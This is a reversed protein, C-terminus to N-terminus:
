PESSPSMCAADVCIRDGKCDTDKTCGPITPPPPPSSAPVASLAADIRAFIDAAYTDRATVNTALKRKTLVAVVCGASSERMTVRVVEGYSFLSIETDAVITDGAREKIALGAGQV